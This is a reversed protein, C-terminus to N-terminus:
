KAGLSVLDIYEVGYLGYPTRGLDLHSGSAVPPLTNAHANSFDAQLRGELNTYQDGGDPELLNAIDEFGVILDFDSGTNTASDDQAGPFM